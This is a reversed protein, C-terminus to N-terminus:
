ASAVYQKGFVKIPQNNFNTDISKDAPIILHGNFVPVVSLFDVRSAYKIDREHGIKLLNQGYCSHYFLKIIEQYACNDKYIRSAAVTLDDGEWGEYKLLSCFRGTTFFDELSFTGHNGACILYVDRNKNAIKNIVAQSNILGGIYINIKRKFVTKSIKKLVETGNNTKLLIIKEAVVSQKFELPSNGLHFGNIGQMEEEGALLFDDKNKLRAYYKKMIRVSRFPIVARAGNNLATIITTGARLTDIMVVQKRPLSIKNLEGPTLVINIEPM